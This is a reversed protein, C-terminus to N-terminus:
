VVSIVNCQVLQVVSRWNCHVVSIVNCSCSSSCTCSCRWSGTSISIYIYIYIPSTLQHSAFIASRVWQHISLHNLTEAKRDRKREKERHREKAM